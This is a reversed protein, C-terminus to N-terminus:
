GKAVCTAVAETEKSCKTATATADSKGDSTCQQNTQYCSAATDIESTCKAYTAKQTKLAAQCAKITEDTQKPDNACKSAASCPDGAGCATMSMALAGFVFPFALQKLVNM